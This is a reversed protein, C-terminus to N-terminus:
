RGAGRFLGRECALVFQEGMSKLEEWRQRIHTAEEACIKGDNQFSRTVTESLQAFDQIVNNMGALVKEDRDHSVPQPNAVFFGDAASCLWNVIRADGTIEFILRVRDLPNRAGSSDPNERAPEQCWKYVLASSVKLKAALTKVGVREVADRM